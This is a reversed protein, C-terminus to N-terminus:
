VPFTLFAENQGRWDAAESQTIRLSEPKRKILCLVIANYFVAAEDELWGSPECIAFLSCVLKYNERSVKFVSIHRTIVVKM